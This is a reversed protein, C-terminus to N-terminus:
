GHAKDKKKNDVRYRTILGELKAKAKSLNSKSSGISINLMEAIESHKYEEFVYLNFVMRYAPSLEKILGLLVSGEVEDIQAISLDISEINEVDVMSFRIEYKKLYQLCCNISVKRIWPKFDYSSDYRVLYRFATFFTDNLMEDAEQRNKAYRACVSRVYGYYLEFLRKESAQNHDLCGAVILKINSKETNM